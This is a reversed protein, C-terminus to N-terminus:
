AADRTASFSLFQHSYPFALFYKNGCCNWEEFWANVVTNHNFVVAGREHPSTLTKAQPLRNGTTWFHLAWGKISSSREMIGISYTSCSESVTLKKRLELLVHWYRGGVSQGRLRPRALLDVLFIGPGQFSAFPCGKRDRVSDLADGVGPEALNSRTENVITAIAVM